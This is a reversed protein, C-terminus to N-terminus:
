RAHYLRFVNQGDHHSVVLNVIDGDYSINSSSLIEGDNGLCKRIATRIDSCNVPRIDHKGDWLGLTGKITVPGDGFEYCIDDVKEDIDNSGNHDYDTENDYGQEDYSDDSEEQGDYEGGYQAEDEKLIRRVSESIIRYLDSETLRIISKKM